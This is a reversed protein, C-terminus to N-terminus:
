AAFRKDTRDHWADIEAESPMALVQFPYSNVDRSEETGDENQVHVTQVADSLALYYRYPVDVKQGRPILMGTGNVGVYVPRKGGAESSEFIMLSVRPDSKSSGRLGEGAQAQAAADRRRRSGIPVPSPSAETEADDPVEIEALEPAAACIKSIIVPKPTRDAIDLGLVTTAYLTLQAVTAQELAIKTM